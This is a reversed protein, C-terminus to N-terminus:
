PSSPLNLTNLVCVWCWGSTWLELWDCGWCFWWCRCCSGTLNGIVLPERNVLTSPLSGM